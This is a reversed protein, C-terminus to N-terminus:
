RVGEPSITKKLLGAAAWTRLEALSRVLEGITVARRADGLSTEASEVELSTLEQARYLETAQAYEAEAATLQERALQLNAGATELEVLAQRVEERVVLRVEQVQLEAQRRREEALAVRAKLEGSSYVPVSLRLSVQGYQDTPFAARQKVLAGDATIVPLYAGKQKGVELRAIEQNALAQLVEPRNSEAEAVLAAEGPLAPLFDGPPAVEIPGEVALALRLDGVASERTQRAVAIRREAEKTDADARLVDVRTTEGAEFFIQAQDRRRRALELNGQEVALLEEAQVVTLYSRAVDLIVQEETNAVGQRAIDINLRAQKIAKRERNGAFVPQSVTLRYSWDNEALITRADDGDGFSVSQDNRTVNGQIGVRPLIGSRIVDTQSQQANVELRARGLATNDTLAQRLAEELTLRVPASAGPVTAGPVTANTSSSPVPPAPEQALAPAAATLALILLLPRANM